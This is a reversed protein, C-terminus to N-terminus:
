KKSDGKDKDGGLAAMLLAGFSGVDDKKEDRDVWSRPGVDRPRRPGRRDDRGGRGGGPRSDQSRRVAGEERRTLAMKRTDPEVRLVRAEVETGTRFTRGLDGDQPVGSESAPLLATVGPELMVFVGFPQVSEVTGTVTMNVPYRSDIEDWPDAALAKLSLGVRRRELDINTVQVRVRDGVSVIDKPHRVRHHAMDSIHVLGDVGPAIEVFAGFNTLRAVTGEVTDGVGMGAVATEYPDAQAQRLSLAIRGRKEDIEKVVVEVEQGLQVVEHPDNVHSWGMESVHVLGDVGGLDVFAGFSQISRVVGRMRAGVKLAARTEVAKEARQANLLATRSVVAEGRRLETVLFEFVQGVLAEPDAPRFLDIQSHPCFAAVHGLQVRYGGKNTEVVKGEVPLRAEMAEQLSSMDADQRSLSRRIKVGNFDIGVVVGEVRDGPQVSLNGDDDRLDEKLIYGTARGGLDLFVEQGHLSVVEVVGAVKEGPEFAPAPAVDGVGQAMLDDFSEDPIELEAPISPAPEPAPAPPREGQGVDVVEPAAAVQGAVGDADATVTFSGAAPPATDQTTVADAPAPSPAAHTPGPTPAEPQNSSM